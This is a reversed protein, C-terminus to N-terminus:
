WLDQCAAPLVGHGCTSGEEALSELCADVHDADVGAHGQWSNMIGGVAVEECRVFTEGCEIEAVCLASALEAAADGMSM